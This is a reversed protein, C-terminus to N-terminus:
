ELDDRDSLELAPVGRRPEAFEELHVLMGASTMERAKYYDRRCHCQMVHSCFYSYTDYGAADGKSELMM